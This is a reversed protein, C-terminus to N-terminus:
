DLVTIAQSASQRTGQDDEWLLSLEGSQRIKFTFEIYPNRAVAPGPEWIFIPRDDLRAEFRNLILRPRVQGTEPDAQLGTEMIHEVQARVRLLEGAQPTKNSIWVRPPKSMSM